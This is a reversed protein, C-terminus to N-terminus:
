RPRGGAVAATTVRPDAGWGLCGWSASTADDQLCGSLRCGPALWLRSRPHAPWSLATAAQQRITTRRQYIGTRCRGPSGLHDNHRRDHCVKRKAQEIGLRAPPCGYHNERSTTVSDLLLSGRTHITLENGYRVGCASPCTSAHDCSADAAPRDPLWTIRPAPSSIAGTSTASPSASGSPARATTRRRVISSSPRGTSSVSEQYGGCIAASVASAAGPLIRPPAIVSSAVSPWRTCSARSSMETRTTEASSASRSSTVAPEDAITSNRAHRVSAPIGTSTDTETM